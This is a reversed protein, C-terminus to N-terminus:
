FTHVATFWVRDKILSGDQDNGSVTPNPNNGIRRAYIGKVIFGNPGIWNLAIGTGKLNYRNLASAGAFDNIRNILIKGWDYFGTVSLNPQLRYRLELNAIEGESGGGENSPYARVGSAGGLYLKEASDLNKNAFQGTIGAYFSLDSTIAQQRSFAYRLKIYDGQTKTTIAESALNPSGGLDVNGFALMLSGQNAGGGGLNDFLNGTLGINITQLSYRSTTTGSAINNFHKNDYSTLLYLNHTRGRIIPYNADLGWTTSDGKAQLAQFDAGILKYNLGSLNAGIRWGDYGIPSTYALRLYDSGESYIANALVQDGILLPSNLFANATARWAGTSRTGTNDLGVEGTWPFEDALKLILDSEAQSTGSTLSASATVGPLDDLLLTARDLNDTSIPQGAQQAAKVWAAARERTFHTIDNGDFQVKGFVAEVIQLTVIGDVIEQRPLYVRVIWGAQRYVEAVAAAAQNLGTFDLPRNLYSEVAPALQSATLLTNGAFRFEQVTISLGAPAEMELPPAVLEAPKKPQLLQQEQDREIQQLLSGANPPTQAHAPTIALCLSLILFLYRM